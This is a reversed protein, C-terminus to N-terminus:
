LNGRKMEKVAYDAARATLAMYTLSPNQCASSTMCSGDTVFLNPVEHAQNWGNLVSEEPNHGMRATGMEHITSGPPGGGVFPNINRCGAADLMAGAQEAVDKRMAEANEGWVCEIHLIPLGAADTKEPDLWVRNERRPLMEGWGGIWITWRGPDRLTRKLEAGIGPTSLGRGWGARGAGGQYGYGRLFGLGDSDPGGLNRFRPVYLGNPRNGAYYRNEEVPVEATAGAGAPHDMLYHGLVGSSNALGNPFRRSTSNLMIQTTGLTSACLFVLRGRIEEHAGTTADVIRVGSARGKEADFLVEAVAADCRITLNGTKQAAPLTSSLSSFYAGASCGRECPGCYHCAGRGNHPRTLIAARGNTVIRDFRQEVAEKVKLEACNLEMPPLFPGDPLQPLNEKKGTVGIFQEVHDYWPKLDEYRLPWDIGHGDLANAEFDLDSLRYVQRGWTLSRGGLQYGRIWHFPEEQVYPHEKDNVFFHQTAERFAYSTRQVPYEAEYLQRDGRGQFEFEWVPVHETPYNGHEVYRGRELVLTKLGRECLEKAAWGGSIGSGVVIADYEEQQRAVNANKEM